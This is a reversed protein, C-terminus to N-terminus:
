KGRKQYKKDKLVEPKNMYASQKFAYIGIMWQKYDWEDTKMLRSDCFADHAVVIIVVVIEIEMQATISCRGRSCRGRSANAVYFGLLSRAAEVIGMMCPAWTKQRRFARSYDSSGSRMRARSGLIPSTLARWM